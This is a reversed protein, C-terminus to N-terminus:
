STPAATVNSVSNQGPQSAPSLRDIDTRIAQLQELQSFQTLQTVFQIGDTPELPNQNRIQAVLLQLFVDRSGLPDVQTGSAAPAGSASTPGNPQIATISTM